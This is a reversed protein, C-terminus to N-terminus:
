KLEFWKANLTVRRTSSPFKSLINVAREWRPIIQAIFYTELFFKKRVEYYQVVDMGNTSQVKECSLHCRYFLFKLELNSKFKNVGIILYM